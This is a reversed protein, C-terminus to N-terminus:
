TARAHPLGADRDRAGVADARRQDAGRARARRGRRADTDIHQVLDFTEPDLLQYEEEVGLTYPDGSGFTHDLVSGGAGLRERHDLVSVGAERDRSVAEVEIEVKWRPDLLGALVTTNAPRM